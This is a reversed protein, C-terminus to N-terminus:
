QTLIEFNGSKSSRMEFTRKLELFYLSLFVPFMDISKTEKKYQTTVNPPLPPFIHKQKQAEYKM